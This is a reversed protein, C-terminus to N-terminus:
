LIISHYCSHNMCESKVSLACHRKLNLAMYKAARLHHRHTVMLEAKKHTASHSIHNPSCAFQKACKKKRIHTILSIKQACKYGCQVCVFPKEGTHIRTHQMLHSRNTFKYGCEECVFPKEGTHIRSHRVLHSRFACKYGCQECVYKKEGLHMKFEQGQIHGQYTKHTIGKSLDSMQFYTREYTNGANRTGCCEVNNGSFRNDKRNCHCLRKGHVGVTSDTSSSSSCKVGCLPGDNSLRAGKLGSCYKAHKEM